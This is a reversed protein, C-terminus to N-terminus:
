GVSLVFPGLVFGSATTTKDDATVTIDVSGFGLIFGTNITISSGPEISASGDKHAGVFVTGDLDISWEVNESPANGINSITASVGFGGSLDGIILIPSSGVSEFFLDNNGNRVDTWVGYSGDIDVSGFEAVISDSVDNVQMPDGWTKGSDESQTVYLNSNKIFLCTAEEGNASVVPYTEDDISDTVINKTWFSGSTSTACYIDQNGNIDDMYVIYARNGGVAINPNTVNSRGGAVQKTSWDLYTTTETVECYAVGIRPTQGLAQFQYVIFTKEGSAGSLHSRPISNEDNDENIWFVGQWEDSDPDATWMIELTDELEYDQAYYDRICACAVVNNGATAIATDKVYSGSGSFDWFYSAWTSMDDIDVYDIMPLEPYEFGSEYTCFARIGDEMFSIDPNIDSTDSEWVIHTDESWTEGGDPSRILGISSQFLDIQNDYTILPNGAFDISISPHAEDEESFIVQIDEGITLPQNQQVNYIKPSIDLKKLTVDCDEMKMELMEDFSISTKEINEIAGTVSVLILLGLICISVISVSKKM